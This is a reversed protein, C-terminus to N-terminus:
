VRRIAYCSCYVLAAVRHTRKVLFFISAGAANWASETDETQQLFISFSKKIVPIKKKHLLGPTLKIFLWCSPCSMNKYTGVRERIASAMFSWEKQSQFCRKAAAASQEIFVRCLCILSTSKFLAASVSEWEDRREQRWVECGTALFHTMHKNQCIGQGAAGVGAYLVRKGAPPRTQKQVRQQVVIADFGHRGRGMQRQWRAARRWDLPPAARKPNWSTGLPSSSGQPRCRQCAQETPTTKSVNEGQLGRELNLKVGSKKEQSVEKHETDPKWNAWCSTPVSLLWPFLKFCSTGQGWQFTRHFFFHFM